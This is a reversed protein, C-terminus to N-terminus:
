APLIAAQVYADTLSLSTPQKVIFPSLHARRNIDDTNINYVVLIYTEALDKDHISDSLTNEITDIVM